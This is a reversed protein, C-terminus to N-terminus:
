RRGAKSNRNRRYYAALGLLGMGLLMFTQPEPVESPANSVDVLENGNIDLQKIRVGEPNGDGYWYFSVSFIELPEDVSYIGLSGGRELSVPVKTVLLVTPWDITFFHDEPELYVNWGKSVSDWDIEFGKYLELDFIIEFGGLNWSDNSIMYTHVWRDGDPHFEYNITAAGAAQILCVAFILPAVVRLFGKM